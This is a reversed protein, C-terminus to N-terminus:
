KVKRGSSKEAGSAARPRYISAGIARSRDLAAPAEQIMPGEGAALWAISVGTARALEVLVPRTPESGKEYARLLAEDQIRWRLRRVLEARSWGHRQRAHELRAIFERDPNEIERAVAQCGFCTETNTPQASVCRLDFRGGFRL